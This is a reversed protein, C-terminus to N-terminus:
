YSFRQCWAEFADFDRLADQGTTNKYETMARGIASM